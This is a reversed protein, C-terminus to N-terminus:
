RGRPGRPPNLREPRGGPVGRQRGGQRGDGPAGPGRRIFSADPTGRFHRPIYPYTETLVYYYTGEPFEPTVGTRGNCEDLDGLNEEYEWDRTFSGDFVGGPGDPLAPREGKKLRYSSSMEVLPSTPDKPDEYCMPAYIPFGDGAWGLLTMANEGADMTKALAEPIAHYHYAGTPQVHANSDDLGLQVAGGLADYNWADEPRGRPPRGRVLGEASWFEATGPDFPVGDLAVGFVGRMPSIKDAAVPKLPVRWEYAQARIANPNGPNPFAGPEHAPLGNSTIIRYAGEETITVTAEPLEVPQMPEPRRRPEQEPVTQRDPQQASAQTEPDHDHGPHAFLAPTCLAAVILTSPVHM